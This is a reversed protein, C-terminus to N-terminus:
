LLRKLREYLKGLFGKGDTEQQAGKSAPEKGRRVMFKEQLEPSQALAEVTPFNFESNPVKYSNFLGEEVLIEINAENVVCPDRQAMCVDGTAPNSVPTAWKVTHEEYGCGRSDTNHTVVRKGDGQRLLNAINNAYHNCYHCGYGGDPDMLGMGKQVARGIRKPLINPLDSFYIIMEAHVEYTSGKCIIVDKPRTEDLEPLPPLTLPKGDESSIFQEPRIRRM